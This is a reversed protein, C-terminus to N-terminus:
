REPKLPGELQYVAVQVSDLYSGDGQAGKPDAFAVLHLLTGERGDPQPNQYRTGVWGFPYAVRFGYKTTTSRAYRSLRLPRQHSRM